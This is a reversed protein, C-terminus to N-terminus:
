TVRVVCWGARMANLLGLDYVEGTKRDFVTMTGDGKGGADWAVPTIGHRKCSNCIYEYFCRRSLVHLDLNAGTLTLHKIAGFEGLIVPVNKDTFQVKMMNFQSDAYAEKGWTANREPDTTLYYKQGWYYFMKGWTEDKNMLCFQYPYNHVEVMLRDAIKDTPLTTMMESTRELNTSPGQLVLSRSGNNGSTARVTDIFTQHFAKLVSMGEVTEM